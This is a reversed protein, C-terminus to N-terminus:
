LQSIRDLPSLTSLRVVSWMSFQISNFRILIHRRFFFVTVLPLFTDRRQRKGKMPLWYSFFLRYSNAYNKPIQQEITIHKNTHSSLIAVKTFPSISGYFRFADNGDFHRHRHHCISSSYLCSLFGIHNNGTCPANAEDDDHWM